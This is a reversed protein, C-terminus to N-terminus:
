ANAPPLNVEDPTVVRALRNDWVRMPLVMLGYNMVDRRTKAIRNFAGESTMSGAFGHWDGNSDQYQVTFLKYNSNDM